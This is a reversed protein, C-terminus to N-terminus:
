GTAKVIGGAPAGGAAASERAVKKAKGKAKVRARDFDARAKDNRLAARGARRFWGTQKRLQEFASDREQADAKQTGRKVPRGLLDEHFRAAAKALKEQAAKGFGYEALQAAYGTIAEPLGDIYAELKTDNRPFPVDLRLTRSAEEDFREPGDVLLDAAVRFEGLSDKLARRSRDISVHGRAKDVAIAAALIEDFAKLLEKTVGRKSVLVLHKQVAKRVKVADVIDDARRQAITQRAM